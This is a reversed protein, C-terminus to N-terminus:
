FVDPAAGGEETQARARVAKGTDATVQAQANRLQQQQMRMVHENTFSNQSIPSHAQLQQPPVQEGFRDQNQLMLLLEPTLQAGVAAAGGTDPVVPAASGSAPAEEVQLLEMLVSIDPNVTQQGIHQQDAPEIQRLSGVTDLARPGTLVNSAASRALNNQMWREVNSLGKAIRRLYDMRSEAVQFEKSEFATTKERLVQNPLM